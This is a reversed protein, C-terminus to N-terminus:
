IMNHIHWLAQKELLLVEDRESENRVIVNLQPFICILNEQKCCLNYQEILPSLTRLIIKWKPQDCFRDFTAHMHNIFIM